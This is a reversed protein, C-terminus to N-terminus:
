APPYGAETLAKTIAAESAASAIRVSKADLNIHVTANADLAKLTKSIAAVCHNCSMDPLKLELMNVDKDINANLSSM